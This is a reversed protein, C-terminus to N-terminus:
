GGGAGMLEWVQAAQAGTVDDEPVGFLVSARRNIEAVDGETPAPPGNREGVRKRLRKVARSLPMARNKERESWGQRDAFDEIDSMKDAFEIDREELIRGFSGGLQQLMEGPIKGGADLFGKAKSTLEEFGSAGFFRVLEIDGERVTAGEDVNRVWRQIVELVDLPTGSKNLKDLAAWDQNLKPVTALRKAQTKRYGDLDKGSWKGDNAAAREEAAIVRREARAERKREGIAKLEAQFEAEERAIQRQRETLDVHADADGMVASFSRGSALHPRLREALAQQANAGRRFSKPADQAILNTFADSEEGGGPITVDSPTLESEAHERATAVGEILADGKAQLDARKLFMEIEHKESERRFREADQAAKVRGLALNQKDREEQQRLRRITLFMQLPDPGPNKVGQFPM